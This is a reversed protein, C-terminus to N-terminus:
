YPTLLRCLRWRALNRNGASSPSQLFQRVVYSLNAYKIVHVLSGWLLWWPSM